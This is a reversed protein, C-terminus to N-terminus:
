IKQIKQIFFRTNKDFIFLLSDKPSQKLVQLKAQEIEDPLIGYKKVVLLADEIDEETFRRLKAIVFDLPHLVKIVLLSDRYFELARERYGLPMSSLSWRSVDEGIDAPIRKDKFFEILAQVDGKVEADVDMTSRNKMGYYHLAIGGLLIIEISEHHQSIFEKLLKKIQELNVQSM